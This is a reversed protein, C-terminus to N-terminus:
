LKIIGYVFEGWNVDPIATYPPYFRGHRSYLGIVYVFDSQFIDNINDKVRSDWLLDAVRSDNRLQALGITSGERTPGIWRANSDVLIWVRATKVESVAHSSIQPTLLSVIASGNETVLYIAAHRVEYGLRRLIQEIARSRYYCSVQDARTFTRQNANAISTSPNM